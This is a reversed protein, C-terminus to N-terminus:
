NLALDMGYNNKMSDLPPLNDNTINKDSLNEDQASATSNNSPTIQYQKM